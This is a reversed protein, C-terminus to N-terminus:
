IRDGRRRIQLGSFHPARRGKGAADRLDCSRREGAPAGRELLERDPEHLWHQRHEGLGALVHFRREAGEAGREEFPLQVACAHLDVFRAVLDVDEATRRPTEEESM